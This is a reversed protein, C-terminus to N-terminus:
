KFEQARCIAEVGLVAEVRVGKLAAAATLRELAAVDLDRLEDLLDGVARPAGKALEVEPLDKFSSVSRCELGCFGRLGPFVDSIKRGAFKESTLWEVSVGPHGLLIRLLESGTYGTAGLIGVSKRTM